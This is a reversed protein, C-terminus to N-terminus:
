GVLGLEGAGESGIVLPDRRDAGGWGRAHRNGWRGRSTPGAQQCWGLQGRARERQVASGKTLERREELQRGCAGGHVRGRRADGPWRRWVGLGKELWVGSV